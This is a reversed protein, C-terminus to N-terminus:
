DGSHTDKEKSRDKHKERNRNLGQGETLVERARGGAGTKSGARKESGTGTETGTKSGTGTETGTESEAGARSGTIRRTGTEKTGTVRPAGSTSWHPAMHTQTGCWHALVPATHHPHTAHPSTPLALWNPPALTPCCGCRPPGEWEEPVPGVLWGARGQVCLWPAVDISGKMREQSEVVTPHPASPAVPHPVSPAVPPPVSPAPEVVSRWTRTEVGAEVVWAQGPVEGRVRNVSSPRLPSSPSSPSYSSSSSSSPFPIPYASIPVYMSPLFPLYHSPHSTLFLLLLLFFSPQVSPSPHLSSPLHVSKTVC